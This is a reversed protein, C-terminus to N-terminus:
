PDRRLRWRQIANAGNFYPFSLCSARISSATELASHRQGWQLKIGSANQPIATLPTELASHRQGWQLIPFELLIGTDLKGDGVSFPTPGM